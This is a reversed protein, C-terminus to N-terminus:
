HQVTVLEISTERSARFAFNNDGWPKYPPRVNKAMPAYKFQAGIRIARGTTPAGSTSVADVQMRSALKALATGFGERKPDEGSVGCKVLWGSQSVLCSVVAVGNIGEHYARLPYFKWLDEDAPRAKWVPDTLLAGPTPTPGTAVVDPSASASLSVLLVVIMARRM